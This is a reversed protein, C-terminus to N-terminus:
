TVIICHHHRLALIDIIADYTLDFDIVNFVVHESPFFNVEGFIVPLSISDYGEMLSYGFGRVPPAL